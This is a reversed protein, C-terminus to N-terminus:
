LAEDAGIDAATGKPRLEGDFDTLGAGGAAGNIAPNNLNPVLHYDAVDKFFVFQSDTCGPQTSPFNATVCTSIACVGNSNQINGQVIVNTVPISSTGGVICVISSNNVITAFNVQPVTGLAGGTGALELGDGTNQVVFVNRLSGAGTAKIGGGTNSAISSREIAYGVASSGQVRAGFGTNGTLTSQTVGLDCSSSLGDAANNALRVQSLRLKGTTCRIGDGVDGGTKAGFVELREMSVDAGAGIIFVPGTGLNTIKTNVVDEGVVSRIGEITFTSANQYTGAQLKITKRPPDISFARLLSCPANSTCNSTPSGAASAFAVDTTTACTGSSTICLGSACEGDAACGGCKGDRCVLDGCDNTDRCQVCGGAVCYPQAPSTVPCSSDTTCTERCRDNECYPASLDCEASTSCVIELCENGRCLEGNACTSGNPLGIAACDAEDVCCKDPNRKEGCALLLFMSLVVSKM